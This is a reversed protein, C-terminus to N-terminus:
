GHGSSRAGARGAPAAPNPRRYEDYLERLKPALAEEAAREIRMFELKKLEEPTPRIVNTTSVAARGYSKALELWKTLGLSSMFHDGFTM